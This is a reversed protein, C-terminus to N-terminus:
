DKLDYYALVIRKLARLRAPVLPHATNRELWWVIHNRADLLEERVDEIRDRGEQVLMPDTVYESSLGNAREEAHAVFEDPTIVGRVAHYTIDREFDLNRRRTASM